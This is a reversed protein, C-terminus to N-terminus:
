KLKNFIINLFILHCSNLCNSKQLTFKESIICKKSLSFLNLEIKQQQM